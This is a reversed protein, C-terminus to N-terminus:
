SLVGRRWDFRSLRPSQHPLRQESELDILAYDRLDTGGKERGPGGFSIRPYLVIQRRLHPWVWARQAANPWAQLVLLVVRRPPNPFALWAKLLDNALSFPPNTWIEYGESGNAWPCAAPDRADGQVALGERISAANPDIETGHIETWRDDLEERLANIWAGGGACPEWIRNSRPRIVPDQTDSEHLVARIVEEPTYAVDAGSQPPPAAPVPPDFLTM